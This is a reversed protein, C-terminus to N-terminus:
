RSFRTLIRLLAPRPPEEKRGKGKTQGRAQAIAVPILKRLEAFLEERFDELAPDDGEKRNAQRIAAAIAGEIQATTKAKGRKAATKKELKNIRAEHSDPAPTSTGEPM